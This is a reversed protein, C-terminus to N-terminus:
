NQLYTQLAKERGTLGLERAYKLANAFSESAREDKVADRVLGVTEYFHPLLIPFRKMLPDAEAMCKEYGASDGAYFYALAAQILLYTDLAHLGQENFAASARKADEIARLAREKLDTEDSRGGGGGVRWRCLALSRIGESLGDHVRGARSYIPEYAEARKRVNNYTHALGLLHFSAVRAARVDDGCRQARKLIFVSGFVVAEISPEPADILLVPVVSLWADIVEEDHAPDSLRKVEEDEIVVGPVYPALILRALHEASSVAEVAGGRFGRWLWAQAVLASALLRRSPDENQVRALSQLSEASANSEHGNLDPVNTFRGLAAGLRGYHLQCSIFAPSTRDDPPDWKRVTKDLIRVAAEGEGSAEYIASLCLNTVFLPLSNAWTELRQRFQVLGTKPTDPGSAGADLHFRGRVFSAFDRDDIRQWRDGYAEKLKQAGPRLEGPLTIYTAKGGRRARSLFGLYDEDTELDAASFGVFIWDAPTLSDLCSQLTASRGRRRQKLTDIMSSAMSVCGHIKIVPLERSASGLRASVAEFEQDFRFSTFPVRSRALAQEILRDFNTTVVAKVRGAAALAAIARHNANGCTVDFAQLGEFYRIGAVEEIIQAQYEPPVRGERRRIELRPVFSALTKFKDEDRALRNSLVTAIATAADWWGPLSTPPAMSVGAGAMVVLGTDGQM